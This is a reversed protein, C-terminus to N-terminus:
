FNMVFLYMVGVIEEMLILTWVILAFEYVNSPRGLLYTQVFTLWMLSSLSHSMMKNKIMLRKGMKKKLHMVKKMTMM